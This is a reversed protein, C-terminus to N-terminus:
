RVPSPVPIALEIPSANTAEGSTQVRFCFVLSLCDQALIINKAYHARCESRCRQERSLHRRRVDDFELAPPAASTVGGDREAALVIVISVALAKGFNASRAPKLSCSLCSGAHVGPSCCSEIM